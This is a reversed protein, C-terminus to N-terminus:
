SPGLMLGKANAHCWTGGETLMVATFIQCPFGVSERHLQDASFALSATRQALGPELRPVIKKLYFDPPLRGQDLKIQCPFARILM